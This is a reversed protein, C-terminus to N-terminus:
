FVYLLDFSASFISHEGGTGFIPESARDFRLELRPTLNKWVNDLQTSFTYEMVEVSNRRGFPEPLTEVGIVGQGLRSGGVDSFYEARFATSLFPTWQYRAYVAAGWWEFSDRELAAGAFSAFKERMNIDESGYVGELALSLKDTPNWTIVENIVYRYDSNDSRQEPGGILTTAATMRTEQWNLAARGMLTKGSNNDEVNDWGNVVAFQTDIGVPIDPDDTDTWTYSMLMGTHTFPIAYGFTYSRSYNWNGPADIVEYGLLTVFKGFKVDIGRGCPIRFQVYAQELDGDDGLNFASGDARTSHIMRAATGFLLDVRYGAAFDAENLPKELTVKVQDINFSNRTTDFIRGPTVGPSHRSTPSAAAANPDGSSNWSHQYSSQVYGSITTAELFELTKPAIKEAAM